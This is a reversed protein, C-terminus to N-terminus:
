HRTSRGPLRRAIPPVVIAAAVLHTAILALASAVDFGFTADPVLSLVTLTATTAVFTRRPRRAWRAFAMALLGGILAGVLTFQGFGLTPVATGDVEFDIGAAKGAVAMLTTAATAVVGSVATAAWISRTPSATAGRESNVSITHTVSM